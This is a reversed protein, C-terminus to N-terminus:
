GNEAARECKTLLASRGSSARFIKEGAPAAPCEGTRGRGPPSLFDRYVDRYGYGRCTPCQGVCSMGDGECEPCPERLHIVYRVAPENYGVADSM